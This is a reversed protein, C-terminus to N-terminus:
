TPQSSMLTGVYARVAIRFLSGLERPVIVGSELDKARIAITRKTAPKPTLIATTGKWMHIGSANSPAGVVTLANSAEPAFIAANAAANRTNMTPKDVILTSQYEVNAITAIAVIVKPLTAARICFLKVRSRAYELM